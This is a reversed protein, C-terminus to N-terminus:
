ESEYITVGARIIEFIPSHADVYRIDYVDADKALANRMDYALGCFRLGRMRSDVLIDVDSQKHATNNAYSGFLIAKKINNAHFVPYLRQKIEEVTYVRERDIDAM